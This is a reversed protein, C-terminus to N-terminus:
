RVLTINGKYSEIDGNLHELELFYVLVQDGLMKGMYTGDWQDTISNISHVLSGLRDYISVKIQSIQGNCRIHFNDNIGDGNPSFATPIFIASNACDKVLVLATDRYIVEGCPNKMLIEFSADGNLLVTQSLSDSPLYVLEDPAWILELPYGLCTDCGIVVSQGICIEHDEGARQEKSKYYHIYTNPLGPASSSQDLSLVDLEIDPNLSNNPDTICHLYGSSTGANNATFYLKNDNAAKLQGLVSGNPVGVLHSTMIDSSINYQNITNIWSQITCHTTFLQTGDPSFACGYVLTMQPTDIVLPNSVLGSNPDFDYLVVGFDNITSPTSPKTVSEAIKTGNPSVAVQGVGGFVDSSLPSIVPMQSIGSPTILYAYFDNVFHKRVLVWYDRGNAHRVGIIKEALSDTLYINKKSLVVDGNGNDLSMDIISYHLGDYKDKPGVGSNASSGDTVFLYYQMLKGLVPSIMAGMTSSPDGMINGGNPMISHNNNFVESGNTYFLLQGNCDSVSACSEEFFVATNNILLPPSQNFDLGVHDGFIWVNGSADNYQSLLSFGFSLWSLFLLNRLM